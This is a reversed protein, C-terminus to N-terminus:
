THAGFCCTGNGLLVNTSHKRSHRVRAKSLCAAVAQYSYQMYTYTFQVQVRHLDLYM